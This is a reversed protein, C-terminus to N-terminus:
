GAAVEAASPQAVVPLPTVPERHVLNPMARGVPSPTQISTVAERAPKPRISGDITAGYELQVGTCEADCGMFATKAVVLPGDISLRDEPGRRTVRGGLQMSKAKVSGVVEAGVNVIVPGQSEIVGVVKGSILLAKSSKNRITGEIEVGADVLTTVDAADVQLLSHIEPHNMLNEAM